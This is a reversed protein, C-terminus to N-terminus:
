RWARRSFILLIPLIELRGAVMALIYFVKATAGVGAFAEPDVFHPGVNGLSSLAASLSGWGDLNSALTTVLWVIGLALMWGVAIASTREAEDTSLPRRGLTLPVVERGSRAALRLRRGLIRGLVAGRLVKLGGATSGVCGGFLMLILFIQKTLPALANVDVTTFGTTTAISVVQFLSTRIHAHLGVDGVRSRDAFGVLLTAGLLLLIWVRLEVNGTVARWRRRLTNWHVLFSTGGLFMFALITYEIAVAGRHGSAAFHAISADYNSFGGTSVTTLAHAVADFLGLGEIWLLLACAVTLGGYISWLIRLSSFVGPSFRESAAKHAEAGLLTHRAGGERLVFLFLTFIGLGGIWETLARWFLLSKPLLELGTFLTAGTTTFGSATEFFADLYTIRLALWYPIAGVLSLVFWGLAGVAMATGATLRRPRFFLALGLGAALSAGAPIAFNRMPFQVTERYIASVVLPAAQLVSFAVLVVGLYHLVSVRSRM